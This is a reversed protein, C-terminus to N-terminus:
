AYEGTTVARLMELTEALPLGVVNTVSGDVSSVFAAGRGQIAYAGAKGMPEGTAVYWDIQTNTLAVFRVTTTVVASRVGDVGGVAVGTHVQHSRGSLRRLMEVAGDAHPPKEFITGDLDVTTDAAVVIEGPAAVAQAKARALRVVYDTPSEAPEPTEDIDPPRVVFDINADALLTSRRPSGSALVFRHGRQPVLGASEAV